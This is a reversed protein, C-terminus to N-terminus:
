CYTFKFRKLRLGTMSQSHELQRGAATDTGTPLSNEKIQCHSIFLSNAVTQGVM